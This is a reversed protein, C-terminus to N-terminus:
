QGNDQPFPVGPRHQRWETLKAEAWAPFTVPVKEVGIGGFGPVSAQINSSSAPPAARGRSATVASNGGTKLTDQARSIL